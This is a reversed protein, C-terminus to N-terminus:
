CYEIMSFSRLQIRISHQLLSESEQGLLHSMVWRVCFIVFACDQDGKAMLLMSYWDTSRRKDMMISNGRAYICTKINEGNHLIPFCILSSSGGFARGCVGTECYGLNILPNRLICRMKWLWFVVYVALYRRWTSDMSWNVRKVSTPMRILAMDVEKGQDVRNLKWCDWGKEEGSLALWKTGGNTKSHVTHCRCHFGDGSDAKSSGGYADVELM